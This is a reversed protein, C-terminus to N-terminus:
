YLLTDCFDRPPHIVMFTDGLFTQAHYIANKSVYLPTNTGSAILYASPGRPYYVFSEMTRYADM